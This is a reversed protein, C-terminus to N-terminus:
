ASPDARESRGFDEFITRYVAYFRSLVSHFHPSISPLALIVPEFISKILRGELKGGTAARQARVPASRAGNKEKAVVGFFQRALCSKRSTAGPRL